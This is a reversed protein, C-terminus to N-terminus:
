TPHSSHQTRSSATMSAWNLWAPAGCVPEPADAIVTGQTPWRLNANAGRERFANEDRCPHLFTQSLTRRMLQPPLAAHQWPGLIRVSLLGTSVAITALCRDSARPQIRCNREHLMGSTIAITGGASQGALILRGGDVELIGGGRGSINLNADIQMIGTIHTAQDTTLNVKGLLPGTAYIGFNKAGVSFAGGEMNVTSNADMVVPGAYNTPTGSSSVINLTSSKLSVLQPQASALDSSQQKTLPQQYTDKVPASYDVTVTSGTALIMGSGALAGNIDLTSNQLTMLGENLLNSGAGDMELTSNVLSSTGTIEVTGVGSTHISYNTLRLPSWGLFLGGIGIGMGTLHPNSSGPTGSYIVPSSM